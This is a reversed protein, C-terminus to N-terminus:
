KLFNRGYEVSQKELKKAQQEFIDELSLGQLVAIRALYFLADGLEEHLNKIREQLSTGVRWEPMLEVMHIKKIANCIEGVEGALATANYLSDSSLSHRITLDQFVVAKM